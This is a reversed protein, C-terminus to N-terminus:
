NRRYTTGHELTEEHMAPQRATYNASLVVDSLRLFVELSAAVAIAVLLAFEEADFQGGHDIILLMTATVFVAPLVSRIVAFRRDHDTSEIPTKM